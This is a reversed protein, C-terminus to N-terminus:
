WLVPISAGNKQRPTAIMELGNRDHGNMKRSLGSLAWNSTDDGNTLASKREVSYYVDQCSGDDCYQRNPDFSAPTKDYTRLNGDSGPGALELTFGSDPIAETSVPAGLDSILDAPVDSIANDDREILYYSKAGISGTLNALVKQSGDRIVFGSLDADFKSDNYLEIWEDLTTSASTGRWGIENIVLPHPHFTIETPSSSAVETGDQDFASVSILSHNKAPVVAQLDTTSALVKVEDSDDGEKYSDFVKYVYDGPPTVQWSVSLNDAQPIVCHGPIWSQACEAINMTMALSAVTTTATSTGTEIIEEVQTGVQSAASSGGSKLQQAIALTTQKTKEIASLDPTQNSALQEQLAEIEQRLAVLQRYLFDIQAQTPQDINPGEKKLLPSEAPNTTQIVAGTLNAPNIAVPKGALGVVALTADVVRGLLSKNKALLKGTQKEKAVEDFFLKIVGASNLVAQKSLHSWYDALIKYDVDNIYYKTDFDGDELNIKRDVLALLRGTSDGGITYIKGDSLKISTEEVIVPKNYERGKDPTTDRSFFNNNSYTALNDFYQGLDSYIIPREGASILGDAIQDVGNPNTTYKEYPSDENDQGFSLYKAYTLHEDNRTHDPVSADEILHLVHGLSQLGLKKDGHVYEYVARDWTYDSEGSFYSMVTGAMFNGTVLNGGQEPTDNSWLKSSEFSQGGVSLGRKNIPDYFHNLARPNIDEDTSGRKIEALDSAGIKLSFYNQNFLKVAENTLEPHTTQDDYAFVPLAIFCLSIIVYKSAVM